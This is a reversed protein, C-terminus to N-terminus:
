VKKRNINVVGSEKRNQLACDQISKVGQKEKFEQNRGFGIVKKMLTTERGRDEYSFWMDVGYDDGTQSSYYAERIQQQQCRMNKEDLEFKKDEHGARWWEARSHLDSSIMRTYEGESGQESLM